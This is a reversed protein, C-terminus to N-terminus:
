DKVKIWLHILLSVALSGCLGMFLDKMTDANSPQYHPHHYIFCDGLFEMGEWLVAVIMASGLLFWARNIGTLRGIAGINQYGTLYYYSSLAISAGGAFHMPIDAWSFWQYIDFGSSLLIHVLLVIFPPLIIKLFTEKTM